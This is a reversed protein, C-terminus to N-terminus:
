IWRSLWWAATSIWLRGSSSLIYGSSIVSFSAATTASPPRPAPRTWPPRCGVQNPGDQYAGNPRWKGCPRKTNREWKKRYNLWDPGPIRDVGTRERESFGNNKPFKNKKKKKKLKFTSHNTQVSAIAWHAWKENLAASGIKCDRSYSSHSWTWFQSVWWLLSEAHIRERSHQWM